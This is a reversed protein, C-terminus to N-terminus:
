PVTVIKIFGVIHIPIPLTTIWKIWYITALDNNLILFYVTDTNCIARQQCLFVCLMCACIDKDKLATRRMQKDTFSKM